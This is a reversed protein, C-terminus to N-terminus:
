NGRNYFAVSYASNLKLSQNYDTIARDFEGKAAFAVGRDNFALSFAPNMKLPQNGDLGPRDFGRQRDLAKEKPLASVVFNVGTK